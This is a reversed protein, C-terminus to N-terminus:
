TAVAPTVTKDRMLVQQAIGLITSVFIYMTLGSPLGVMMFSFLVPMVMMVKQQAPDMGASPTMKQQVFMSVGMLVPYIYYPDKVSLDKIWGFFPAHFLEIANGIVSYLAFLVPLQVLIPLCGGMPNVKHAKFLAMQEQNFRTMDDKYKERLAAIKPQLKQMEKMSRVSKAQLPYFVIRVLLTLLIIAVGYNPILSYFFKLTKLLPVAFIAFMGYDIMRTLQPVKSLESYDKPGAYFKFALEVQTEGEKLRLPYRLYGGKFDPQKVFVVDPNLKSQNVIASAFYRNGFGLWTTNGQLVEEGDNLSDLIKRTEKDNQLAVVEWAKIPEDAVVEFDKGGLPIMVHGWDNKGGAPFNLQYKANVVYSNAEQTYEKKVVVGKEQRSFVATSGQVSPVYAGDEFAKLSSDSFLTSFSFERPTVVSIPPSNKDITEHYEVVKIEAPRGGASSFVISQKTNAVTQAGSIGPVTAFMGRPAAPTTSPATPAGGGTQADTNESAVTTPAAPKGGDRMSPPAFWQLYVLWIACCLIVAVWTRSAM